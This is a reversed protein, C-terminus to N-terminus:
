LPTTIATVNLFPAEHICGLFDNLEMVHLSFVWMFWGRQLKWRKCCYSSTDKKKKKKKIEGIWLLCMSSGLVGYCYPWIPYQFRGQTFVNCPSQVESPCPEYFSGGSVSCLGNKLCSLVWSRPYLTLNLSAKILFFFCHSPALNPVLNQM